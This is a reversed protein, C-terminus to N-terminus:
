ILTNVPDPLESGEMYTRITRPATAYGPALLFLIAEVQKSDPHSSSSSSLSINYPKKITILKVWESKKM